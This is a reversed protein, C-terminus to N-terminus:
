RRMSHQRISQAEAWMDEVGERMLATTRRIQLGAVAIGLSLRQGADDVLHEARQMAPVDPERVPQQVYSLHQQQTPSPEAQHSGRHLAGMAHMVQHGSQITFSKISNGVSEWWLTAREVASQKVEPQYQSM